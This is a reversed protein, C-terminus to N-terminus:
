VPRWSSRPHSLRVATRGAAATMHCWFSRVANGGRGGGAAFRPLGGHVEVLDFVRVSVDVSRGPRACGDSVACLGTDVQECSDTGARGNRTPQGIPRSHDSRPRRLSLSMGVVRVDYRLYHGLSRVRHLIPSLVRLHRQDPNRRVRDATQQFGPRRCAGHPGSGDHRCSRRIVRRSLVALGQVLARGPGRRRRRRLDRDREAAPGLRRRESPSPPNRASDELPNGSGGDPRDTRGATDMRRRSRLPIRGPACLAFGGRCRCRSAPGRFPSGSGISRPGAQRINSREVSCRTEREHGAGYWAGSPFDIKRRTQRRIPEFTLGRNAAYPRRM